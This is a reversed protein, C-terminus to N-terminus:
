FIAATWRFLPDALLLGAAFSATNCAAACFLRRLKTREPLFKLFVAAEIALILLEAPLQYLLDFVPISPAGAIGKTSWIMLYLLLQTATNLLLFLKWHKKLSFGFLLLVIGEILLTPILTSLYQFPYALWWPRQNVEGTQADFRITTRFVRVHIVDSVVTKGDGAALIIRFERPPAYGFVHVMEDGDPEGTLSGSLPISSADLLAPNWGEDSLSRLEALLEPDAQALEEEPINPYHGPEKQILLDLYYTGDPPNEVRVTVMPKPGMDAFVPHALLLPLLLCFLLATLFRQKM